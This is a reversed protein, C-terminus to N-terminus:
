YFQLICIYIFLLVNKSVYIDCYGYDDLYDFSSNFGIQADQNSTQWKGDCDLYSIAKELKCDSAQAEQVYGIYREGYKDIPVPVNLLPANNGRRGNM